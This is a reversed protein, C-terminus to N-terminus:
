RGRLKQARHAAAHQLDKSEPPQRSCRQSVSPQAASRDSRAVIMASAQRQCPLRNECADHKDM